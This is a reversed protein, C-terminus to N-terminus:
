DPHDPCRRFESITMRRDMRASRRLKNGIVEVIEKTTYSSGEAKCQETLETAAGSPVIKTIKCTVEYGVFTNRTYAILGNDETGPKTKCAASKEFHWKGQWDSDATAPSIAASLLFVSAAIRRKMPSGM